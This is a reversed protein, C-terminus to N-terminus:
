VIREIKNEVSEEEGITSMFEQLINLNTVKQNVDNLGQIKKNIRANYVILAVILAILIFIVIEM